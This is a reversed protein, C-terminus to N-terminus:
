SEEVSGCFTDEHGEGGKGAVVDAESKGVVSYGAM